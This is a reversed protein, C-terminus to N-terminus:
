PFFVIFLYFPINKVVPSLQLCWVINRLFVFTFNYLQCAPLLESLIKIM